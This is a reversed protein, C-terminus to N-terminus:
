SESNNKEDVLKNLLKQINNLKEDQQDFRMDQKDFRVDQKDFRANHQSLKSDIILAINNSFKEEMEKEKISIQSSIYIKIVFFSGAVVSTAIIAILTLYEKNADLKSHVILWPFSVLAYILFFFFAGTVLPDLYSINDDNNKGSSDQINLICNDTTQNTGEKNYNSV